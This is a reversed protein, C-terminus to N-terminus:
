GSALASPMRATAQGARVPQRFFSPPQQGEFMRDFIKLAEAESMYGRRVSPWSKVDGRRVVGGLGEPVLQVVADDHGLAALAALRHQGASAVLCKWENLRESLLCVMRINDFGNPDVRLGRRRISSYVATLRRFELNGKRPSVPGYFPDGEPSGFRAGHERNDAAIDSQRFAVNQEPRDPRWLSPAGAPSVESLQSCSPRELGMLEAASSPQFNRYFAELPSNSYSECREEGYEILTRIYPSASDLNCPFALWPFHLCRALPIKLLVTRGAGEYIAAVPDMGAVDSLDLPRVNALPQVYVGFRSLLRKVRKKNVEIM